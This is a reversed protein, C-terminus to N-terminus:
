PEGTPRPATWDALVFATLGFHLSPEFSGNVYIPDVVGEHTHGVAHEGLHPKCVRTRGGGGIISEGCPYVVDVASEVPEAIVSHVLRTGLPQTASHACDCLQPIGIHLGIDFLLNYVNFVCPIYEDGM